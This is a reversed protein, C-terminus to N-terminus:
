DVSGFDTNQDHHGSHHSATQHSDHRHANSERQERVGALLEGGLDDLDFGGEGSRAPAPDAISVSVYVFGVAAIGLGALILVQGVFAWFGQAVRHPDFVHSQRLLFLVTCTTVIISPILATRKPNITRNAGWVSPVILLFLTFSGIGKFFAVVIHQIRILSLLWYVIALAVFIAAYMLLTTFVGTAVGQKQDSMQDRKQSRPALTPCAFATLSAHRASIGSM